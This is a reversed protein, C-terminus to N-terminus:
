DTTFVKDFARKVDELGGLGGDYQDRTINYQAGYGANLSPRAWRVHIDVINKRHRDHPDYRIVINAYNEDSRRVDVEAVLKLSGYDQRKRPEEVTVKGYPAALEKVDALVKQMAAYAGVKLPQQEITAFITPNLVLLQVESSHISGTDDFIADWGMSRLIKNWKARSGTGNARLIMGERMMDWARDVEDRRDKPPYHHLSGQYKEWADTAHLVKSLDGDSITGYDLIRASPKLTVIFKYARDPWMNTKPQFTLPFLYIGLPDQFTSKLNITMMPHDSYHVWKGTNWDALSEVIDTIHM